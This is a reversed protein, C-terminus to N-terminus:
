PSGAGPPAGLGNCVPEATVKMVLALPPRPGIGVHLPAGRSERGRTGACMDQGPMVHESTVPLRGRVRHHPSAEQLCIGQVFPGM